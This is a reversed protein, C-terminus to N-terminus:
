KKGWIEIIQGALSGIKFPKTIVGKAGLDTLEKIEEPKSLGTLFIIPIKNGKNQLIKYMEKGSIEPMMLDLILLDIGGKNIINFAANSSSATNIKIQSFDKFARQFLPHLSEDDDVLLINKPLEILSDSKKQFASKIEKILHHSKYLPKINNIPLYINRNSNILYFSSGEKLTKEKKWQPILSLLEQASEDLFLQDFQEDGKLKKVDELTEIITLEAKFKSLALQIASTIFKDFSIGLVKKTIDPKKEQVGTSLDGSSLLKLRNIFESDDSEEGPIFFDLYERMLDIFLFIKSIDSKETELNAIQDEFKHCLNSLFIIEYSGASGKISHIIGKLLTLSQNFNKKKNLEISLEYIQDLKEPLTKLYETQLEILEKDM